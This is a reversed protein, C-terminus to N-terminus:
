PVERGPYLNWSVEFIEKIMQLLIRRIINVGISVNKENDGSAKQSCCDLMESGICADNQLLIIDLIM